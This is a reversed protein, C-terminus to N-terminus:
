LGQLVVSVDIHVADQGPQQDPVQPLVRAQGHAQEDQVARVEEWHKVSQNISQYNNVDLPTGAFSAIRHGRSPYSSTSLQPIITCLTWVVSLMELIPLHALLAPSQSGGMALQPPWWLVHSLTDRLLQESLM